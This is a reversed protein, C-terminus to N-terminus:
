ALNYGRTADRHNCSKKMAPAVKACNETQGRLKKASEIARFLFQSTIAVCSVRRAEGDRCAQRTGSPATTDRRFALRLSGRPSCRVRTDSIRGTRTRVVSRSAESDAHHPGTERRSHLPATRGGRTIPYGADGSRRFDRRGVAS